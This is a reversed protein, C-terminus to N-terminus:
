VKITAIRRMILFGLVQLVIATFLLNRGLSERFLVRMYDPATFMIFMGVAVPLVSLIMGSLRAQATLARVDGLIRLRERIVFATGELIEVLNGGTERQLLVAIVFLHLEKSDVREAMNRLAVRMDIGFRNEEFVLNFEKAVEDACEEAVVQIAGSFAMGSRLASTLIDLADPFQREFKRARQVTQHRLWMLPIGGCLGGIPAAWPTVNLVFIGLLIPLATFMALIFLFNVLQIKADARVLLMKLRGMLPLSRLLADLAPSNAYRSDRLITPMRVDGPTETDSIERLRRRLRSAESDGLVRYLGMGAILLTVFVGICLVVIEGNM